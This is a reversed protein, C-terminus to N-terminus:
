QYPQRVGRAIEDARIARQEEKWERFRLRGARHQDEEAKKFAVRAAREAEM